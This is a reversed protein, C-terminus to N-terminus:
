HEASDEELAALTSSLGDKDAYCGQL